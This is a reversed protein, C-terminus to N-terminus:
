SNWETGNWELRLLGYNTTITATSAGNITCSVGTITRTVSGADGKTDRVVVVDGVRQGPQLSYGTDDWLFVYSTGMKQLVPVM